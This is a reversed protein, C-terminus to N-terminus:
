KYIERYKGPAMGEKDKFVRYFTSSSCFGAIEGIQQISLNNNEPNNIMDKVCEIRFCNVWDCFNTQKKENIIRSIYTRNSGTILVIDTIRLDPNKYLDQARMIDSLQQMTIRDGKKDELKLMIRDYEEIDRHFEAITFDKHYGVYGILFLFLSHTISPLFILLGKDIFFDKGLVNSIISVASAFLFVFMLRKIATLNRDKINSYFRKVKRNYRNILIFGFVVSLFIQILFFVKFIRIRLIQLNVLCPFPQSYGEEHYMVGRIFIDLEMSSMKSYIVFSFISLGVAPLLIWIWKWNIRIDTTLLRIYYYFLPFASLSTFVWLNEVFAYLEYQRNFFAAHVFYNVTAVSLLFTLFKKPLNNNKNLLLVMAWFFCIFMPMVSLILQLLM